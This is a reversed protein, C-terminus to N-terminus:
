LNEMTKKDSEFQHRLPRMLSRLFPNKVWVLHRTFTFSAGLLAKVEPDTWGAVYFKLGYKLALGINYFWSVFYLNLQRALPYRFGIYKDILLDRHMLCINYGAISTGYRYIVVLGRALRGNLLTQFFDRSLLDFHIESQRYVELYMDYFEDLIGQKTFFTDGLELVEISIEAAAKLKRRLDKRRGHSLRSMYEDATAFDIPVYALAQGSLEYFGRTVGAITLKQAYENDQLPLFPSSLPLDKVITLSSTGAQCLLDELLQEPPLSVPVPAYETITTGAFCASWNFLKGWYKFLPAKKLSKRLSPELTTLVDFHTKFLLLGSSELRVTFATPPYDFFLRPYSDPEVLNRYSQRENM